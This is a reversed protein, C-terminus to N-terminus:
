RCGLHVRVIILTTLHNFFLFTTGFASVPGPVGAGGSWDTQVEGPATPGGALAGQLGAGVVMAGIWARIGSTAPGRM